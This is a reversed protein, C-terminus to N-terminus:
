DLNRISPVLLALACLVAAALGSVLFTEPIPYRQIAFGYVIPAVPLLLLAGFYDVSTVRGLMQAPVHRQLASEWIVQFVTLGVGSLFGFVLIPGLSPFFGFGALAISALIEAAYM